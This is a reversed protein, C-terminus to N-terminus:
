SLILFCFFIIGVTLFLYVFITDKTKQIGYGGHIHGYIVYPIKLKEVRDKAEQKNMIFNGVNGV